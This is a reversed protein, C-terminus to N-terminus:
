GLATLGAIFLIAAVLAWGSGFAWEWATDTPSTSLWYTAVATTAYSLTMYFRGICTSHWNPHRRNCLHWGTLSVVMLIGVITSAMQGGPTRTLGAVVDTRRM